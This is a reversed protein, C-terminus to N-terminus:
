KSPKEVSQGYYANEGHKRLFHRAVLEPDAPQAGPLLVRTAWAMHAVQELVVAHYVAEAADRGWAFPGHHRVLAAPVALPDKGAFLEVIARGTELEYAGGIQEETLSRTCPVEGFFSDAHTTGMCPIPLGAQAWVTAWPSHTHVIGGIEEFARYLALHTDLDSSPRLTGSRVRGDLDVAVMDEATMTEYDVGSPKIVIWGTDEDRESANGWTYLVLGRAVLELNARYVRERTERLAMARGGEM